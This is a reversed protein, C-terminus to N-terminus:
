IIKWGSITFDVPADDRAVDEVKAYLPRMRAFIPESTSAFPAITILALVTLLPPAEDDDSDLV